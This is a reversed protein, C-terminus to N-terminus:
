ALGEAGIGEKGPVIGLDLFLGPAFIISFNDIFRASTTM